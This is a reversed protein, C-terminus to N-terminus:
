VLELGTPTKGGSFLPLLFRQDLCCTLDTQKESAEREEVFFASLLSSVLTTTEPL